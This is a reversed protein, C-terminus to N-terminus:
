RSGIIESYVNTLREVQRDVTYTRGVHAQGARGMRQRLGRDRILRQTAEAFSSPDPNVLLGTEADVVTESIGGAKPGVVPTGAAMAEIAIRGFPEVDCPHVLIDLSRM